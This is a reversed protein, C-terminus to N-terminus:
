NRDSLMICKSTRRRTERKYGMLEGIADVQGEEDEKEKEKWLSPLM